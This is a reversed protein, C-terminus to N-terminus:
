AAVHFFQQQQRGPDLPARSLRSSMRSFLYSFCEQPCEPSYILSVNKFVNQLISNYSHIRSYMRSFLNIVLFEQICQPSYFLSFNKFVNQLISKYSLIRSYMRSFLNIVLFEQICQPSYFLSFNKFVNQLISKYSLIISYM